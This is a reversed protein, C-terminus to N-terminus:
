CFFDSFSHLVTETWGAGGPTLKFVTGYGFSGGYQTTGYLAGLAGQILGAGPYGGDIGNFSHLVTETWGADGPTLKFVTGAYFSGGYSTTGYLTTFPYQAQAVAPPLGCMMMALLGLTRFKRVSPRM